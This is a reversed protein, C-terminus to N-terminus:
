CSVGELRQAELCAQRLGNLAAIFNEMGGDVIEVQQSNGLEHFCGLAQSLSQENEQLLAALANLAEREEDSHPRRISIFALKQRLSALDAVIHEIGAVFASSDSQGQRWDDALVAAQRLAVTLQYSSDTLTQSSESDLAGGNSVSPRDVMDNSAANPALGDSTKTWFGEHTESTGACFDLRLLAEGTNKFDDLAQPLAGLDGDSCIGALQLVAEGHAVVAPPAGDQRMLATAAPRLREIRQALFEWSRQGSMVAHGAELLDNIGEAPSLRPKEYRYTHQRQLLDELQFLSEVLALINLITLDRENNHLSRYTVTFIQGLRQFLGFAEALITAENDDINSNAVSQRFAAFFASLVMDCARLDGEACSFPLGRDDCDTLEAILKRLPPLVVPLEANIDPFQLEM